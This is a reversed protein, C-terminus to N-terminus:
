SHSNVINEDPEHAKYQLFAKLWFKNKPKRFLMEEFTFFNFVNQFSFEKKVAEM